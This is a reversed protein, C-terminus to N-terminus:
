DNYDPVVIDRGFHAANLSRRIVTAMQRTRVRVISPPPNIDANASRPGTRNGRFGFLRATVLAASVPANQGERAVVRAALLQCRMWPSRHTGRLDVSQPQVAQAGDSGSTPQRGAQERIGCRANRDQQPIREAQASKPLTKETFRAISNARPRELSQNHISDM